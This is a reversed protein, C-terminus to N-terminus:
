ALCAGERGHSCLTWEMSMGEHIRVRVQVEWLVCKEVKDVPMNLKQSGLFCSLIKFLFPFLQVGAGDM